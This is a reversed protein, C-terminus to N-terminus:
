FTDLVTGANIRSFKQTQFRDKAHFVIKKVHIM